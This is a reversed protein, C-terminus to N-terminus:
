YILCKSCKGKDKREKMAAEEEKKNKERLSKIKPDSEENDITIKDM